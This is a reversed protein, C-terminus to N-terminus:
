FFKDWTYAVAKPYGAKWNNLVWMLGVQMDTHPPRHGAWTNEKTPPESESLGLPGTSETKM